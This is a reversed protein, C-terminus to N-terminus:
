KRRFIQPRCHQPTTPRQSPTAKGRRSIVWAGTLPQQQEKTGEKKELYARTKVPCTETTEPLAMTKEECAETSKRSIGMYTKIWEEDRRKFTAEM